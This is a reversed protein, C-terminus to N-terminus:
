KDGAGALSVAGDALSSVVGAGAFAETGADRVGEGGSGVEANM